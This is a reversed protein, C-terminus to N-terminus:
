KYEIRDVTKNDMKYYVTALERGNSYLIQVKGTDPFTTRSVLQGNEYDLVESEMGNEYSTITKKTGDTKESRVLRNGEYGNITVSTGQEVRMLLGDPSYTYTGDELKVLIEGSELVEYDGTLVLNSSLIQYLEGSQFMYSDSMFRLGTKDKVAVPEDGDSSRLFFINELTEDDHRISCFALHGNIYTYITEDLGSVGTRTERTLLGNQYVLVTKDGSDLDIQELIRDIGQTTENISVVAKGDLYLISSNGNVELSYGKDAVSPIAELRQYLQNSRYVQAFLSSAILLLILAASFRKM